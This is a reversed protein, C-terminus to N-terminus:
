LRNRDRPFKMKLLQKVRQRHEEGIEWFDALDVAIGSVLNTASDPSAASLVKRLRASLRANRRIRSKQVKQHFMNEVLELLEKEEASKMNTTSPKVIAGGKRRENTTKKKKHKM